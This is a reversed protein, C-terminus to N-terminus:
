RENEQSKDKKALKNKTPKQEKQAVTKMVKKQTAKPVNNKMMHEAIQNQLQSTKEAKAITITIREGSGYAQDLHKKDGIIIDGNDLQMTFGKKAAGVMTGSYTEGETAIAIYQQNWSEIGKSSKFFDNFENSISTKEPNTAELFLREMKGPRNESFEQSAQIMREQTIASFDIHHGAQKAVQRILARQTRGNGERFPHIRNIEGFTHAAKLAFTDRDLGQLFNAKELQAFVQQSKKEIDKPLTFPRYSKSMSVQRIEGAWDYIDEFLHKHIAKLGEFDLPTQPLTRAKQRGIIREKNALKESDRIGPKNKLTGNSYLYDKWEM